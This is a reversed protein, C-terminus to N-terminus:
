HICDLHPNSDGQICCLPELGQKEELGTDDPGQQVWERERNVRNVGDYAAGVMFHSYGSHQFGGKVNQNSHYLFHRECLGNNAQHPFGALGILLAPNSTM